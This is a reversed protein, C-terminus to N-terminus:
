GAGRKFPRQEIGKLVPAHSENYPVGGGGEPRWDARGAIRHARVTTCLPPRTFSMLNTTKAKPSTAATNEPPGVINACRCAPTCSTGLATAVRLLQVSPLRTPVAANMSAGDESPMLFTVTKSDTCLRGSPLCATCM